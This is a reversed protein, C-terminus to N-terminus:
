RAATHTVSAMLEGRLDEVRRTAGPGSIEFLWFEELEYQGSDMQFLGQSKHEAIVWNVVIRYDLSNRYGFTTTRDFVLAPGSGVTSTLPIPRLGAFEVAPDKKGRTEAGFVLPRRGSPLVAVSDLALLTAARHHGHTEATPLLTFVLDYQERTLLGDLFNRIAPRDWNSSDAAAADTVFGLDKQDLFYLHRIGLLKGARRAEEQRIAPLHARGEAESSLAVGYYVEALVSYRYGAEGNTIV